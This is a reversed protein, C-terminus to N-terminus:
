ITGFEWRHPSDGYLNQDLTEAGLWQEVRTWSGDANQSVDDQTKLWVPAANAFEGPTRIHDLDAGVGSPKRAYLRTRQAVPYHRQVEEIGQMLKEAIPIDHNTLEKISTGSHFMFAEYLTNDTEQSWQQIRRWQANAAQSPGCYVSLPHTVQTNRLAWTDKLPSNNQWSESTMDACTYTVVGISAVTRSIHWQLVYGVGEILDGLKYGEAEALVDAYRGERVHTRIKQGDPQLSDGGQPQTFIPMTM